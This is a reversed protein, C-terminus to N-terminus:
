ATLGLEKKLEEHKVTMAHAMNMAMHAVTLAIVREQGSFQLCYNILAEPDKPTAFMNSSQFISKSM